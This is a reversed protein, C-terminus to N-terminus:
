KIEGIGEIYQVPVTFLIGTDPQDLGGTIDNVIGSVVPIKEEELVVFITKNEHHSPDLLLRLSAIFKLEDHNYLSQAMGRSDIVTAGKIGEEAFQELIDELCEIKNLVVILLQVKFAGDRGNSLNYAYFFRRLMFIQPLSQQKASLSASCYM